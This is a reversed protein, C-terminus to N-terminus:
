ISILLIVAKTIQLQHVVKEQLYLFVKTADQVPKGVYGDPRRLAIYAFNHSSGNVFSSDKCIFGTSTIRAMSGEQEQTPDNPELWKTNSSTQGTWKRM